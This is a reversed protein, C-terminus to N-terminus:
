RQHCEEHDLLHLGTQDFNDVLVQQRTVVKLQLGHALYRFARHMIQDKHQYLHFLFNQLLHQVLELSILHLIFNFNRILILQLQSLLEALM